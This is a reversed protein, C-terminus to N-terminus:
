PNAPKMIVELNRLKTGCSIIFAQDKQKTFAARFWKKLAM